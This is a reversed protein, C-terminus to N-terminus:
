KSKLGQAQFEWDSRTYNNKVLGTIDGAEDYSIHNYDFVEVSGALTAFTQLDVLRVYGISDYILLYRENRDGEIVSGVSFNDLNLKSINNQRFM